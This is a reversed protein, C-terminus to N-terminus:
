GSKMAVINCEACYKTGILRTLKTDINDFLHKIKIPMPLLFNFLKSRTAFIPIFNSAMLNDIIDEFKFHSVVDQPQLNKYSQLYSFFRHHIKRAVKLLVNNEVSEDIVFVGGNKLCRRVEDFFSLGNPIHHLTGRALVIDFVDNKFPLIRADGKVVSGYKKAEKLSLGSDPTEIDIGYVLSSESKFEKMSYGSGCGLDLIILM